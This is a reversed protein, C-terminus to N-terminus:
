LFDLTDEAYFSYNRCHPFYVGTDSSGGSESSDCPVTNKLLGRQLSSIDTPSGPPLLLSWWFSPHNHDNRKKTCNGREVM